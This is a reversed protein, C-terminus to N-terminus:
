KRERMLINKIDRIDESSSTLQANIAAYSREVQSLRQEINDLRKPTVITSALWLAFSVLATIILITNKPLSFNHHGGSNLVINEEIM